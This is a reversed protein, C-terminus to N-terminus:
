FLFRLFSDFSIQDFCRQNLPFFQCVKEKQGKPNLVIVELNAKGAAFTEVHFKAPADAHNGTPEIGKQFFFLIFMYCIRIFISDILVPVLSIESSFLSNTQDM